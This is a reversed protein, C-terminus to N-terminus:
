LFSSYTSLGLLVVLICILFILWINTTEGLQIPSGAMEGPCQGSCENKCCGTSCAYMKGAEEYACVTQIAECGKNDYRVSTCKCQKDQFQRQCSKKDNCDTKVPCKSM